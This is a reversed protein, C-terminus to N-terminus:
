LLHILAQPHLKMIRQKKKDKTKWEKIIFNLPLPSYIHNQEGESAATRTILQVHRRTEESKNIQEELKRVNTQLFWEDYMLNSMLVFHLREFSIAEFQAANLFRCLILDKTACVCKSKNKITWMMFGARSELERVVCLWVSLFSTSFIDLKKPKITFLVRSSSYFVTNRYISCEDKKVTYLSNVFSCRQHWCHKEGACSFGFLGKDGPM